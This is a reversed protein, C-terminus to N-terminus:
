RQGARGARRRREPARGGHGLRDRGLVARLHQGARRRCIARVAGIADVIAAGYSDLGWDRHRADPNRWSLVFVQQGQGALYEIMSRGPALDIIYYKNIMPPVILLPYRHVSPRRGAPVPDARLRRTRVVVAGPTVALDRASRSRTPRSWRPCGRRRPCTALGAVPAGRVVSLGGTDIVAKWAVPSILPNNSPAAADILNDRVFRM